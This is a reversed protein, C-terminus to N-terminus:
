NIRFIAKANNTTAEAIKEINEGRLEAIKQAVLKVNIPKNRGVIPPPTLYPCDTEVLMKELPINKIVEEVNFKFIIGNFGIYFGMEIYKKAQELNGTFCHIVGGRKIKGENQKLIEILEDHAMRCHVMIPLNLEQALEIQKLFIERQRNKFEELKTNTKPKYYYDLGIEGIAVIKKSSRALNKYKEYDFEEERTKFEIEEADIKTKFIGEALHIPHLGIIAYVGEQYKESIEVARQSTEYQSGVNIMWVDNDLSRRIVDDADEKFANFNVHAHTDIFM